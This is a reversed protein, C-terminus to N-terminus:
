AKAPQDGESQQQAREGSEQLSTVEQSVGIESGALTLRPLQDVNAGFGCKAGLM